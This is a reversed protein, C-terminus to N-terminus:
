VHSKGLAAIKSLQFMGTLRDHLFPAQLGFCGQLGLRSEICLPTFAVIYLDAKAKLLRSYEVELWASDSM